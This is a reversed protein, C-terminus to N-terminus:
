LTRRHCTDGTDVYWYVFMDRNRERMNEADPSAACQMSTAGCPDIRLRLDLIEALRFHRPQSAMARKATSPSKRRSTRHVDFTEHIETAVATNTVTAAAPARSLPRVFARVRLPGRLGMRLYSCSVCVVTALPAAATLTFFFALRCIRSATACTWAEKLLVIM